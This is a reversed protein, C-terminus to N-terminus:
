IIKLFKHRVDCICVEVENLLEDLNNWFILDYIMFVSKEEM